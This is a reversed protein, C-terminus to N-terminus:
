TAPEWNNPANDVRVCTRCIECRLGIASYKCNECCREAATITERELEAYLSRLFEYHTTEYPQLVERKVLKWGDALADNVAKDFVGADDMYAKITKIQKM